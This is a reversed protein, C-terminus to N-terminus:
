KSTSRSARMGREAYARYWDLTHKIGEALSVKPQWSLERHARTCDLSISIPITPKCLDNEIRLKQGSATVIAEVLRQVPVAEGSGVNYLGFKETQREIASCVFDVLDSVYLLDRREQGKGWVVIRGDSSTLAKHVTAGFVHSREPDFKDHPGYVNSHRIVTFRTDGIRAYFECMREIYLKTYAAGFYRPDIPGSDIFDGETQRRESSPYMVSCSFFIFHQVKQEFAARLLHSNMVANDAVHIYPRRVIDNAGSTVAAAQVVIDAGAIAQETETRDSLDAQRWTIGPNQFPAQLHHIGIVDFPPQAALSEVVNRGIFGTAGCVVVRRKM